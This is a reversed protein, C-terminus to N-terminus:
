RSMYDYDPLGQLDELGHYLAAVDKRVWVSMDTSGLAAYPERYILYKWLKGTEAPTVITYRITDHAGLIQSLPEKIHRQESDLVYNGNADKKDLRSPVFGQNANNPDDKYTEEPFWWRMPYKTVEWENEWEPHRDAWASDLVMVKINQGPKSTPGGSQFSKATYDRFYWEMPWSTQSDYIVGMAKGGTLQLSLRNIAYNVRVVDPSTQVYVAMETPVDPNYFSLQVASRAEYLTFVALAGLALWRATRRPGVWLGYAVHLVVLMAIFLIMMMGWTSYRDAETVGAPLPRRVQWDISVAWLLCILIFLSIFGFFPVLSGPRSWREWPYRAPQVVPAAKAGKRSGRAPQMEEEDYAAASIRAQRERFITAIIGGLFLAAVIVSPQVIHIMLWPMKESAYTYAGWVGVTWFIAFLPLFSRMSSFPVPRGVNWGRTAGPVPESEDWEEEGRVRRVLAGIGKVAFFVIGALSFLLILPEYLPIILFFYYWPQGGRAVGQQHMWYGVSGFIGTLLGPLNSFLSSYFATYIVAMVALGTWLVVPERLLTGVAYPLSGQEYRLLLGPDRPAVYAPEV